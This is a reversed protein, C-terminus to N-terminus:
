TSKWRRVDLVNSLQEIRNLIRTLQSLDTVQLTLLINAMHDEVVPVNIQNISVKENAVITSVDKLLGDRDYARVRIPVSFTRATANGWNVEILRETERINMADRCDRRHITVGRNRTVFGVIPDGKLPKCCSALRTLMGGAGQITIEDGDLTPKLQPSLPPLADGENSQSERIYEVVRNVVTQPHIDGCGLALLFDETKRNFMEAIEDYTIHDIGLRKLERELMGRGATINLERDQKKFWGRIKERARASKVFGLDPNIWDRSPGGRNATIIEVQDGSKLETDLSVLRGNVKAGRCREGVATHVHFAFDIPTSGQPLDVIDGKPTFAYVRDEFVDSKLAEVFARGETVDQRWEMMQRFVAVREDMAQDRKVGEKYRWHAAVGLESDEHMEPTRIQVELPKGDDYIVATHLSRYNNEKPMAIYDDFEHPQPKWLSHILGLTVYCAPVDKVIVRVARVDYIREFPDQKRQMKRYISYIHKPRGNVEILEIHNDSLKTKIQEIIKAMKEEREARREDLLRAIERYREPEAYRFALDELEWKMKWIGLRNALPAFIELTERAMRKQREPSLHKLTRLNHLRDALKILIVRGDEMMALITKRLTEADRDRTRQDIRKEDEIEEPSLHSEGESKGVRSVGPMNTLKTVGDVLRAVEDGFKNRLDDLTVTTDEVVDHLLGAMIVPAPMNMEGLIRAVSVCHTIYPEGSARKQGGHAKEALRYAKEIDALDQPSFIRKFEQYLTEFKM